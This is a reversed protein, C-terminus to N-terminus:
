VQQQLLTSLLSSEAIPYPASCTSSSDLLSSCGFSFNAAPSVKIFVFISESVHNNLLGIKFSLHTRLYLITEERKTASIAILPVIHRPHFEQWSGPVTKQTWMLTVPSIGEAVKRGIVLKHFTSVPLSAPSFHCSFVPRGIVTSIPYLASFDAEEGLSCINLLLEKFQLRGANNVPICCTPLAPDYWARHESVEILGLLRLLGHQDESGSLELSVSRFMCNGDGQTVRPSFEILMQPQFQRM